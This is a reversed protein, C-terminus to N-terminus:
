SQGGQSDWKPEGISLTTRIGYLFRGKRFFSYPDEHIVINKNGENSGQRSQTTRYDSYSSGENQRSELRSVLIKALKPIGSEFRMLIKGSPQRFQQAFDPWCDAILLTLLDGLDVKMRDGPKLKKQSLFGPHRIFIVKRGQFRNRCKAMQVSEGKVILPAERLRICHKEIVSDCMSANKGCFDAPFLYAWTEKIFTQATDGIGDYFEDLFDFLKPFFYFVAHLVMPVCLGVLLVILLIMGISESM